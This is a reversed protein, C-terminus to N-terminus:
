DELPKGGVRFIWTLISSDDLPIFIEMEMPPRSSQSAEARIGVPQPPPARYSWKTMWEETLRLDPVPMKGLQSRSRLVFARDRSHRSPSRSRPTRPRHPHGRRATHSGSRRDRHHSRSRRRRRHQPRTHSRSRDQSPLSRMQRERRPAAHPESSPRLQADQGPKPLRTATGAPQAQGTGHKACTERGNDAPKAASCQTRKSTRCRWSHWSPWSGHPSHPFTPRTYEMMDRPMTATPQVAPLQPMTPVLAPAPNAQQQMRHIAQLTPLHLAGPAPDAMPSAMPMTPASLPQTFATPAMPAMTPQTITPTLQQPTPQALQQVQLPHPNGMRTFFSEQPGASRLATLAQSQLTNPGAAAAAALLATLPDM